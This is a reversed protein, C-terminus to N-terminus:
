QIIMIPKMNTSERCLNILCKRSPNVYEKGLVKEITMKVCDMVNQPCLIKIVLVKQFMNLCSNYPEPFMQLMQHCPLQMMKMWADENKMYHECIQNFNDM